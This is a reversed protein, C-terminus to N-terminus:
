WPVGRDAEPRTTEDGLTQRDAWTHLLWGDEDATLECTACNALPRGLAYNAPVNRAITPLTLSMAGGHCIVLLTEGRFQDAASELEASVRRVIDAASEGEPMAEHIEGDLWRLFQEDFQPMSGPVRALSGVGVERLDARVKVPVGLIAAAIEATQVSRSMDSCWVAAIRRDRLSEALTAAQGRGTETLWGGDNSVVDTTDYAAEGHRAVILTAPCHLVM